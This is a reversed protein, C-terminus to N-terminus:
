GVLGAESRVRRLQWAARPRALVDAAAASLLIVVLVLLALSGLRGERLWERPLGVYPVVVRAVGVVSSPQVPTSDAVPNADGRTVYSGDANVRVIRHTVTAGNRRFTIITGPALRGHPAASTMVIDGQSLTPAMSGSAATRAHWGFLLMPVGIVGTFAFASLLIALSFIGLLCRMRAISREISHQTADSGSM